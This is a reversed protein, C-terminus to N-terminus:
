LITGFIWQLVEALPVQNAIVALLPVGAAVLLQLVAARDVPVLHLGRATEVSANLDAASSPDTSGMLEEGDHSQEVWKRHFALHHHTALRGYELLARERAEYIPGVFALLPGLFLAMSLALWALLAVWVTDLSHREFALDKIISSSVVCSLAFLLGSFISPYIALFGLGASRDPHLPTLRLPLRAIAFLLATWVAFRWLWRFVLFLFLPNSVFRMVEGAWALVVADGVLNGEWGTHTLEVVLHEVVGSWAFASAFLVAEAV